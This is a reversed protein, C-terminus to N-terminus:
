AGYSMPDKPCKSLTGLGAYFLRYWRLNLEVFVRPVHTQVKRVDNQIVEMAGFTGSSAHDLFYHIKNHGVRSWTITLM